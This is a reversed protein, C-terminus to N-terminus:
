LNLSAEGNSEMQILTKYVGYLKNSHSKEKVLSKHKNYKQRGRCSLGFGWLGESLSPGKRLLRRLVSLCM